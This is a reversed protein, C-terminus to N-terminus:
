VGRRRALYTRTAVTFLATLLVLVLAGAWAQAHWDDYPAVAYTYIQVPLTAIPKLLSTQWFRNGFATFLLPATDGAARAVALLSGTVIGTAATPVVVRLLTKWYPVGLALSAERIAAPVLRLMEETTRTVTPLMIIALAVGGAMASFSRLPLVVLTYVFIGVTISPVGSLVEVTFRVLTGLPGNGYEALYIGAGIGAPLALLCAISLVVLSGVIANAVGGGPTGVPAPLHTFFTPTLAPLGQRLVYVFVHGLVFIALAASAWCLSLMAANVVRRRLYHAARRSQATSGRAVSTRSTPSASM